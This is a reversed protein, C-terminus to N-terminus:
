SGSFGHLRLSSPTRGYGAISITLLILYFSSKSKEREDNWDLYGNAAGDHPHGHDNALHQATLLPSNQQSPEWSSSGAGDAKAPVQDSELFPETPEDNQPVSTYDNARWPERNTHAM